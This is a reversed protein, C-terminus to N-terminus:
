KTYHNWGHCVTSTTAIARCVVGRKGGIGSRGCAISSTSSSTISATISSFSSSSSSSMGRSSSGRGSGKLPYLVQFRFAQCAHRLLCALLCNAPLLPPHEYVLPYVALPPLPPRLYEVAYHLAPVSWVQDM